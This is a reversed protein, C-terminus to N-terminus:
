YVGEEGKSAKIFSNSFLALLIFIVVSFAAAYGYRFYTFASRYVQTVLIHTKENATNQVLIIIVNVMNFTWVTGLVVMPTIIPKLVPLTINKLRQWGSAGDIDASEYLENPISQLGALIVMMMFPFGLWINVIIAGIFTWQSNTLWAIPEIGIKNLIINVAGYQFDYMGRWTLVAIYQPIAWPIMLLVRFINKGPLKRNLMLALWLGITVHFFVNVVTWVITRWFISFLEGNAFITKYNEFGIYKPNFFTNLSMNTFSLNFGYGLPYAVILLLILLSPLVYAYPLWKKTQYM